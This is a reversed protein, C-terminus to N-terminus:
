WNIRVGALVTWGDWGANTGGKLKSYEVGTMLKFKHGYFYYNLGGYGANYNDGTGGGAAQEYRQIATLGDPGDSNAHQYRIVAQLKKTIDYSPLIIFGWVDSVNRLGQAFILDTLLGFKGFKSDSRLSIVNEYDQLGDNGPNGDNHFGDLHVRGQSLGTGKGFDYGISGLYGFGADFQSFEPEEDGAFAGVRYLFRGGGLKGDVSIGTLYEPVPWVQTVLLSREFTLIENSSISGEQTYRVMVKGVSLHFKEGPEWDVYAETLSRYYPDTDKFEVELKFSFQRFFRGSFGFRLRRNEWGLDKGTNGKAWHYQGQYRGIFRFKQLIPNDENEYVTLLGWIRDFSSKEEIVKNSVTNEDAASVFASNFIIALVAFLLILTIINSIKPKKLATWEQFVSCEIL